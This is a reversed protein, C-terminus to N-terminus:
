EDDTSLKKMEALVKMGNVRRPKEGKKMRGDDGPFCATALATSHYDLEHYSFMPVQTRQDLLMQLDTRRNWLDLAVADADSSQLTLWGKVTEVFKWKLEHDVAEQETLFEQGDETIYIARMITKM